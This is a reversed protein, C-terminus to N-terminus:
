HGACHRPDVHKILHYFFHQFLLTPSGKSLDVNVQPYFFLSSEIVEEVFMNEFGISGWVPLVSKEKRHPVLLERNVESVACIM